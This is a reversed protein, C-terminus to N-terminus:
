MPKEDPEWAHSFDNEKFLCDVGEVSNVLAAAQDKTLKRM